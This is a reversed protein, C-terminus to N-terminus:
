VSVATGLDMNYKVNIYLLCLKILVFLISNLSHHIFTDRLVECCCTYHKGKKAKMKAAKTAVSSEKREGKKVAGAITM